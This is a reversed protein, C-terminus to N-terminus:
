PRVDQPTPQSTLEADNGLQGYSDRGWCKAGGSTTVACTHNGGTSISAVGSTLGMVDVPTPQRTLAADNGLGGYGDYGWCKAGGSSTVVCTHASGVALRSVGSTLGAVDVPTLQDTM